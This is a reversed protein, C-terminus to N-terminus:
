EYCFLVKTHIHITLVAFLMLRSYRPDGRNTNSKLVPSQLRPEVNEDNDGDDQDGEVAVGEVVFFFDDDITPLVM